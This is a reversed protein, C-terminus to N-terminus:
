EDKSYFLGEIRRKEEIARLKAEAADRAKIRKPKQQEEYPSFNFDQLVKFAAFYEPDNLLASMGEFHELYVAQYNSFEKKADSEKAATYEWGPDYGKPTAPTWNKLREVVKAYTAPERM